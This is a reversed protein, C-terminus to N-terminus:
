KGMVMCALRKKKNALDSKAIWEYILPFGAELWSFPSLFFPSLNPLSVQKQFCSEKADLDDKQEVYIFAM